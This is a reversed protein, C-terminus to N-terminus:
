RYEVETHHGAFDLAVRPQLQLLIDRGMLVKRQPNVTVFSSHRWDEVCVANARIRRTRNNADHIEVLISKMVYNYSQGLHSARRKPSHKALPSADPSNLLELPLYIDWAGTDLDAEMEITENGTQLGFLLTPYADGPITTAHWPTAEEILLMSPSFLVFPYKGYQNCIEELEEEFPFNRLTPGHAVIEGDVVLLWNANLGRMQKEIWAVNATEAESQYQRQQEDPWNLYEQLSANKSTFNDAPPSPIKRRIIELAQAVAQEAQENLPGLRHRVEDLVAEATLTM